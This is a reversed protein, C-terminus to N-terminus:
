HYDELNINDFYQGEFTFTIRWQGSVSVSFTGKRDGKLEHLRLSPRSLADLSIGADMDALITAIREVLDSPLGRPVGTEFLRKLGKHKFGAIM